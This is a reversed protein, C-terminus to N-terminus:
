SNPTGSFRSQTGPVQGGVELPLTSFGTGYMSFHKEPLYAMPSGFYSGESNSVESWYPSSGGGYVPAGFSELIAPHPSKKFHQPIAAAEVIARVNGDDLNGQEKELAELHEKFPVNGMGPSLHSDSHGFNDTLHIHKVDKAIKKTEEVVDKESFGAKRLSVNLHGVDWTAGILQTAISKAEKEDMGKKEVLQTEFNKRSQNILKKLDDANNFAGMHPMLNELALVPTRNVDKFESIAKFAVNGITEAAKEAAFDDVPKFVQPANKETLRGLGVISDEYLKKKELPFKLKSDMHQKGNEEFSRLNDKNIENLKKEYGEAFEDLAQKQEDSGAYKYAKDFLTQFNLEVNGLFIDAQKIKAMANVKEQNLEGKQGMEFIETQTKDLEDGLVTPAQGIIEDANKQYTALSTLSSDWTTANASHVRDKPEFMRGRKKAKREADTMTPRFMEERKLPSLEGTEQNIAIISETIFRGEEGPKKTEDPSFTRGPVNSSSHIVVPINAEPDLQHSKRVVEWIRDEAEKRALDGGWGREGFGAPDILPAHVSPKVGTLKALANMEKFHEEPIQDFVNPDLAGVEVAKQQNALNSFETIQAASQPNTPAGLMDAGLRFGIYNGNESNLSSYGGEYFSEYNTTDAM